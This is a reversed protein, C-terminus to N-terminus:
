LEYQARHVTVMTLQNLSNLEFHTEHDQSEQLVRQVKTVALITFQNLTSNSMHKRNKPCSVTTM